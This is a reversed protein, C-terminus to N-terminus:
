AVEQDPNTMAINSKRMLANLLIFGYSMIFKKKTKNNLWSM